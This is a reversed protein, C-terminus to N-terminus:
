FNRTQFQVCLLNTGLHRSQCKLIKRQINYVNKTEYAYQTDIHNNMFM